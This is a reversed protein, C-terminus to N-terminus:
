NNMCAIVADKFFYVSKDRHILLYEKNQLELVKLVDLNYVRLDKFIYQPKKKNFNGYLDFNSFKEFEPIFVNNLSIHTTFQLNYHVNYMNEIYFNLHFHDFPSIKNFRTGDLKLYKFMRFKFKDSSTNLVYNQFFDISDCLITSNLTFNHRVNINNYLLKFLDDCNVFGGRLIGFFCVFLTLILNILFLYFNFNKFIIYISFISRNM